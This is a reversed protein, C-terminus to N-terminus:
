YDKKTFMVELLVDQPNNGSHYVYRINYGEDRYAKLNTSNKVENLLRLRAEEENISGPVDAEGILSYCYSVTHTAADFTLSDIRTAKNIFAPCNKETYTKAERACREELSEQCATLLMLFMTTALIKKM